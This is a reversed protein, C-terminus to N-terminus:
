GGYEAKGACAPSDANTYKPLAIKDSIKRTSTMSTYRDDKGRM